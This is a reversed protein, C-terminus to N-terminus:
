GPALCQRPTHNCLGRNSTSTGSPLRTDTRGRGGGGEEKMSSILSHAPIYEEIVDAALDEIEEEGSEVFVRLDDHTPRNAIIIRSFGSPNPIIQRKNGLPRRHLSKNHLGREGRRGEGKERGESAGEMRQHEHIPCKPEVVCFFVGLGFSFNGLPYVFPLYLPLEM